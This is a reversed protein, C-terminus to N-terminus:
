VVFTLGILFLFFLFSSAEERTREITSEMASNMPPETELAQPPQRGRRSQRLRSVGSPASM